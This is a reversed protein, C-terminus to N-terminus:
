PVETEVEAIAPFVSVDVSQGLLQSMNSAVGGSTDTSLCRLEGLSGPAQPQLLELTVLRRKLELAVPTATDVVRAQGGVVQEIVPTLFAYHTCGLVIHDAGATLLPQVYGEVAAVARDSGLDVAEVLEVLAPCAVVEIKAKKSFRRRLAAFSNSALTRETALIGVVGSQSKLAAPKVGPEVGIIPINFKARLRDISNVTATNCAVVVAKCGQACLFDVIRESRQEIQAKSKTGYPSFKQDAVYILNESPLEQRIARAISLGGLGSDFIGIPGSSNM